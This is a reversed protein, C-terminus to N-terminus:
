FKRHSRRPRQLFSLFNILEHSLKPFAYFHSIGPYFKHTALPTITLFATSAFAELFQFHNLNWLNLKKKSPGNKAGKFFLTRKGFRQGGPQGFPGPAPAPPHGARQKMGHQEVSSTAILVIFKSGKQRVLM